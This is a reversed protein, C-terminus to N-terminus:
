IDSGSIDLPQSNWEDEENYPVRYINSNFCFTKYGSERAKAAVLNGTSTAHKRFPPNFIFRWM